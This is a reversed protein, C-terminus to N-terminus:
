KAKLWFELLQATGVVGCVPGIVALAALGSKLVYGLWVGGIIAVIAITIAGLQTLTQVRRRHASEKQFEKIITEPLGPVIERFEKLTAPPPLPGSYVSAITIQLGTGKAAAERVAEPPLVVVQSDASTKSPETSAPPQESPNKAANKKEQDNM